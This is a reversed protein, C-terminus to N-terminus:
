AAGGLLHREVAETAIHRANGVETHAMSQLRLWGEGGMAALARAAHAAEPPNAFTRCMKLLREVLMAPRFHGCARAAMARVRWDADDLGAQLVKVLDGELDLFPLARFFKIRIEPNASRALSAPAPALFLRQQTLVLELAVLIRGENGSQMAETIFGPLLESDAPAFHLMILRQWASMRPIQELLDHQAALDSGQLVAKRAAQRGAETRHILGQQVAARAAQSELQGLLCIARIARGPDRHTTQTLLKGYVASHELLHEVRGRASGKLAAVANEAVTLFEEPWKRSARLLDRDKQPDILMEELKRIRSARLWEWRLRVHKSAILFLVLIGLITCQVTVFSVAYRVFPDDLRELWQAVLIVLGGYCLAILAVLGQVIRPWNRSYILRTM